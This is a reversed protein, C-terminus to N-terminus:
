KAGGAAKIAIVGYADNNNRGKGKAVFYQYVGDICAMNQGPKAFHPRVKQHAIAWRTEVCLMSQHDIQAFDLEIPAVRFGRANVTLVLETKGGNMAIPTGNGQRLTLTVQGDKEAPGFGATGKNLANFVPILYQDGYRADAERDVAPTQLPTVVAVFV